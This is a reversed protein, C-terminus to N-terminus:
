GVSGSDAMRDLQVVPGSGKASSWPAAFITGLGFYSQFVTGKRAKKLLTFVFWVGTLLRARM